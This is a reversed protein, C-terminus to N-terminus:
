DEREVGDKMREKREYIQARNKDKKNRGRGRM